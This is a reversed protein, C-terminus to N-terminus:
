SLDAVKQLLMAPGDETQKNEREDNMVNEARVPEDGHPVRLEFDPFDAFVDIAEIGFVNLEAVLDFSQLGIGVCDLLDSAFFQLAGLLAFDDDADRLEWRWGIGWSGLWLKESRGATKM